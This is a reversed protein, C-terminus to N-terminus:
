KTTNKLFILVRFLYPFNVKVWFKINIAAIQKKYAKWFLKADQYTNEMDDTVRKRKPFTYIVHYAANALLVLCSQKANKLETRGTKIERDLMTFRQYQAQYADMINVNTHVISDTRMFYNYKYKSISAINSANLFLTHMVWVDEYSKGDPFCINQFVEKRFLKNWLHSTIKDECLLSLAEINSYVMDYVENGQRVAGNEYAYQFGIMYIDADVAKMRNFFSDYFDEEIWDDSDVFSIWEGTAEKIGRNRASSVGANEQHFLKIRTDKQSLQQCIAFSQDTSGDDIIIIELNDYSQSIVSKICRKIYTEVNYMPIIVSILDKM